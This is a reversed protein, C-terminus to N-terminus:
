FFFCSKLQFVLLIYIHLHQRRVEKVNFQKVKFLYSKIVERLSPFQINLQQTILVPDGMAMGDAKSILDILWKILHTQNNCRLLASPAPFILNNPPLAKGGIWEQHGGESRPVIPQPVKLALALTLQVQQHHSDYLGLRSFEKCAEKTWKLGRDERVGDVESWSDSSM